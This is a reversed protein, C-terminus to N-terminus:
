PNIVGVNHGANQSNPSNSNLVWYAMWRELGQRETETETETEAETGEGLSETHLREPRFSLSGVVEEMEASPDFIHAVM